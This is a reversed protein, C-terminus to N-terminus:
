EEINKFFQKEILKILIMKDNGIPAFLFITFLLYIDFSNIIIKCILQQDPIEINKLM